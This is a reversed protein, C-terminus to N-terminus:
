PTERPPQHPQLQADRSLADLARSLRSKVTGAPVGLVRATEAESLDLYYRLVVVERAPTGLRALARDVILAEDSLGRADYTAEPVSEVPRERWWHRRRSDRHANLLVRYAYADPDDAAQLRAWALYCKLLATQALDEAEADTCGLLVGARVLRDWRERAFETFERDRGMGEGVLRVM